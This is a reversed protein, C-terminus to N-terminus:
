REEWQVNIGVSGTLSAIRLTLNDGGYLYKDSLDLTLNGAAAINYVTLVTGVGVDSGHYVTALPAAFYRNVRAPTLSTNAAATGDRELTLTCAVSCYIAAGRFHVFKPAGTALQITVAESAASLTTQQSATYSGPTQAPLILGGALCLIALRRM